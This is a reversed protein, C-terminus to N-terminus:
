FNAELQASCRIVISRNRRHDALTLQKVGRLQCYGRRPRPFAQLGGAKMTELDTRLRETKKALRKNLAEADANQRELAATARRMREISGGSRAEAAANHAM